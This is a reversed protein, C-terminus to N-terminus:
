TLSAVETEYANRRDSTEEGNIEIDSHRLAGVLLKYALFWENIDQDGPKKV